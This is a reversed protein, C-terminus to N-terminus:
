SQGGQQEVPLQYRDAQSKKIIIRQYIHPHDFFVENVMLDKGCYFSIQM